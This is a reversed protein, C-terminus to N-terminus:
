LRTRHRTLCVTGPTSWLAAQTMLWVNLAMILIVVFGKIGAECSCQSIQPPSGIRLAGGIM